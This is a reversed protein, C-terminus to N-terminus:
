QSPASVNSQAFTTVEHTQIWDSTISSNSLITLLLCSNIEFSVVSVSLWQIICHINIIESFLAVYTSLCVVSGQAKNGRGYAVIHMYIFRYVYIYVYICIMSLLIGTKYLFSPLFFSLFFLNIFSYSLSIFLYIFPLFFSFFLFFPLFICTLNCQRTSWIAWIWLSIISLSPTKVKVWLCCRNSLSVGFLILILIWTYVYVYVFQYMYIYAHISRCRRWSQSWRWATKTNTQDDWYSSPYDRPILDCWSLM